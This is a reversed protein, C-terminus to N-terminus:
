KESKSEKSEKTKQAKKLEELFNEMFAKDQESAMTLAKQELAMAGDIDGQMFVFHAVTDMLSAKVANDTSKLIGAKAATLSANLLRKDNPGGQAAAEYINWAVMNTMQPQDEVKVFISKLHKVGEDIKKGELLVQLKLMSLQLNDGKRLRDDIMKLADDTKGADLAAFISQMMRETEQQEKIQKAFADRDWKDNVVEKLPQDIEMPHGIWEIKADKGVIFATPIGGQAAAEMYDKSSGGDPDTTLCYASTLKRYTKEKDEQGRVPKDLFGEVTDLDEDSISVIQVKDAYEKQLSALHPMSAVCPPCWTAWFEVVYVKGSQFKTVPKFKGSGNQVWHEVDLPPATSGITLLEASSALTNWGLALTVLGAIVLRIQM